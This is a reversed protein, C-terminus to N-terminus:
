GGDLQVVPLWMEGITGGGRATIVAIGPAVGVANGNQDVTAITTDSSSWSFGVGGVVVNNGNYGTATLPLTEGVGVFNTSANVVVYLVVSPDATYTGSSCSALGATAFSALCGGLALRYFAAPRSM